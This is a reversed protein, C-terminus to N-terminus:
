GQTQVESRVALVGFCTEVYHFFHVFHGISVGNDRIYMYYLNISLVATTISAEAAFNAADTWCCFLAFRVPKLDSWLKSQSRSPRSRAASWIVM